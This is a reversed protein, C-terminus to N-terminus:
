AQLRLRAAAYAAARAALPQPGRAARGAAVGAAGARRAARRWVPAARAPECVLARPAAGRFSRQQDVGQSYHCVFM